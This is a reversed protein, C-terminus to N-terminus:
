QGIPEIRVFTRTPNRVTERRGWSNVDGQGTEQREEVQCAVQTDGSSVGSFAASDWVGLLHFYSVEEFGEGRM